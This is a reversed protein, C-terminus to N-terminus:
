DPSVSRRLIKKDKTIRKSKLRREKAARGPRTKKRKKPIKVAEEILAMLRELAIQRNRFQSREDQVQIVLEDKDNIRNDLKLRLRYKEEPGIGLLKDLPLSATVKTNVKNVNQGGAGGSRSFTLVTETELSEKLLEREM